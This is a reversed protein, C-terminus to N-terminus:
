TLKLNQTKLWKGCKMKKSARIEEMITANWELKKMAEHM